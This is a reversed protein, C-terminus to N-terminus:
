TVCHNRSLIPAQLKFVISRAYGGVV